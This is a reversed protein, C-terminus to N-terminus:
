AKTASPPALATVLLSADEVGKVTHLEGKPLYLLEGARLLHTERLATFSVSGELCQVILSGNAKHEQIEKGAPIVLRIIQLGDAKALTKTKAATLAPGLPRVNIIDGPRPGEEAPPVGAQTPPMRVVLVPCVAKRLVEEAVSGTLLRDLGTRGHTGM